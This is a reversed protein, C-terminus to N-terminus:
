ESKQDAFIRSAPNTIIKIMIKIRSRIISKNRIM